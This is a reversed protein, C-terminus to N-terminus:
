YKGLLTSWGLIKATELPGLGTMGNPWGIIWELLEIRPRWGWLTQEHFVNERVTRSYRNGDLTQGWGSTAMTETPRPWSGSETGGARAEPTELEWCAGGLMMGYKPWTKSFEDLGALLSLQSTKWSLSDRDLISFPASCKMGYGPNSVTLVRGRERAPYTRAPSDGLSLTSTKKGPPRILPESITGSRSAPSCGTESDLSCSGDATPILRSLASPAGGSCSGEWSAEERGQLYHWSM